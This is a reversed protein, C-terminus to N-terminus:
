DFSGATTILSYGLQDELDKDLQSNIFLLDNQSIPAYEKREYLPLATHGKYHIIPQYVNNIKIHYSKALEDLVDKPNGRATEYRIYYVNKAKYQIQLFNKTKATRLHMVNAFPLGNSPNLDILPNCQVDEAIVPDRIDLKWPSRIFHHFPLIKLSKEAQHPQNHLSRLWDYPNRVVIVFLIDDTNEFSWCRSDGNYKEKPLDYWPPFHKHCFLTSQLGTNFMLLAEVYNSGSAREAFM